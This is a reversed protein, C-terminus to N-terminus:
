ISKVIEMVKAKLDTLTNLALENTSAKVGFYVKIKPETGSPRLVFWSDDELIYKIVNAKPLDINDISNNFLNYRKQLEYDEIIKINSINIKSNNNRFYEMIENIKKTGEIGKLGINELGEKYYGFEKYINELADILTLGKSNYYACAQSIMLCAQMADKDRVQDSVLFGYSEEFGFFYSEDTNEILKAQEGIYKFGTLVIKTKLGYKEGIKSPLESSVNTTYIYGKKPLNKSFKALYDVLLTAIQNGNLLVYESNHLVAIGMRDADPDTALLLKANNKKGYNISNIFAPAEEPNASKVSSFNPDHIMEEDVTIVNYNLDRLISPAFVSGTGHLPTYIINFDKNLNSIEVNNLISKVMKEYAEDVSSNMYKILEPNKNTEIKFYDEISEINEIVKDAYEPTLQCGDADYIKYGNYEKPNHSATIMVGGDAKLYRVAFSLYPTPRLDNALYVTTGNSAFVKATELAFEKSYHRNDHCVVVCKKNGLFQSFGYSAKRITYINMRNTGVGLIGRMGGTGFELDKSFAELIESDSLSNLEEKLKKDLDEYNVWKNYNNNM